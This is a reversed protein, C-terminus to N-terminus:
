SKQVKLTPRTREGVARCDMGSGMGIHLRNRPSPGRTSNFPKKCSSCCFLIYKGRGLTYNDCYGVANEIQHALSRDTFIGFCRDFFCDSYSCLYVASGLSQIYLVSFLSFYDISRSRLGLSTFDVNARKRYPGSLRCENTTIWPAAVDGRDSSQLILWM